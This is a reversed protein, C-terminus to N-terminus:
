QRVLFQDCWIIGTGHFSGKATTSSPNHDLNDLAGVTFLGKRLQAPCVIGKNKIDECVAIAMQNEVQLVRNYSVSLGLNHLETILKKSRTLIHVNLGLYLPLPPEHNLSHRIKVTSVEKKVDVAAKKCNFLITQVVTLCTQIFSSNFMFAILITLCAQSDTSAQDLIDGGRLLMNVLIKLSTPVSEQQCGSPFEGNFNFWSSTFIENRVIKAAKMLILADEQYDSEQISRKFMQQMGQEFILITNKGDNQEQANPFYELVQQKFRGKNVEKIDIGLDHLRNEYIQRLVSFKFCFTGNEISHTILEM